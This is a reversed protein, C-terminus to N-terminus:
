LIMRSGILFNNLFTTGPKTNGSLKYNFSLGFRKSIKYDFSSGLLFGMHRNVTSEGTVTNWAIPAYTTFVQPSVTLKRSYQYPKTWFVVASSAISYDFTGKSNKIFLNIVGVNYGYTGNKPTPKIYTYGILTMYNGSLYAASVGYSHIADLQGTSTMGMKTYGGSLVISSLNSNIMINSSYSEDGAMSAKSVGMSISALYKGASVEATTLDSSILLPNSVEM